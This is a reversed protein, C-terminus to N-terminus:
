PKYELNFTKEAVDIIDRLEIVLLKKDKPELHDQLNKVILNQIRRCLEGCDIGNEKDLVVCITKM